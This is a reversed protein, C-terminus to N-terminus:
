PVPHYFALQNRPTAFMGGVALLEGRKCPLATCDVSLAMSFPANGLNPDWDEADGNITKTQALRSRLIPSQSTARLYRFAGGLITSCGRADVTTCGPDLFAYVSGSTPSSPFGPAPDWDTVSGTDSINVQAARNRAKQPSGINSFRGGVYLTPLAEGLPATTALGEVIGDPNPNWDTVAGTFRDVEALNNRLPSNIIPGPGGGLYVNRETTALAYLYSGNLQPNWNTPAGTALDIEAVRAHAPNSTGINSFAGAAYITTQASVPSTRPAVALAYVSGGSQPQADPNWSTPAGTGTAIAALHNRQSGATASCDSSNNVRTFDGGIYLTSGWLMMTRVRDNACPNFSDDVSHDRKIHVLNTHSHLGNSADSVSTFSGGAYWCGNNDPVVARVDGSGSIQPWSTDAGTEYLQVPGTTWTVQNRDPDDAPRIPEQNGALDVGRVQFTHQGSSLGDYIKPTACPKFGQGDLQCEYRGVVDGDTASVFTFTARTRSSSPDASTIKTVPAVTDIKWQYQAPYPDHLVHPLGMLDTYTIVSRAALTNTGEILGDTASSRSYFVPSPCSLFPRGNLSCEFQESMMQTPDGRKGTHSFTFAAVGSNSIPPPKFMFQTDPDDRNLTWQYSASATSGAIRVRLVHTGSDLPSSPTYFNSGTCPAFPPTTTPTGLSCEVQAEPQSTTFHIFPYPNGSTTPPTVPEYDRTTVSVDSPVSRAAVSACSQEGALGCARNAHVLDDLGATPPDNEPHGDALLNTLEFPDHGPRLDYYERFKPTENPDASCVEPTDPDSDTPVKVGDFRAIYQFTSTTISGWQASPNCGNPGQRSGAQENFNYNRTTSGLLSQGDMAPSGSSPTIGTAGLVTPAIDINEVWRNDTGPNVHGPWRLYFPVSLSELYPYPKGRLGHEGWEYGNDSLFFAITNSDQGADQLKRMIRDVMDDASKLMRLQDAYEVDNEESDNALKNVNPPKDNRDYEFYADTKQLAPVSAKSYQPEPSYHGHPIIPAVYLFWPAGSNRQIFDTARDAVYTSEYQSVWKQPLTQGTNQDFESSFFGSHVYPSEYIAGESWHEPRRTYNWFNFFKGIIGTRYGNAQLYSQLTANQDFNLRDLDAANLPNRTIGHNHAYRGSFTSGRSPCCLPTSDSANPFYAGGSEFWAKTKPMVAMTDKLRQDDTLIVLVNPPSGTV